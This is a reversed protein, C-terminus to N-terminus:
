MLTDALVPLVNVKVREPPVRVWSVVSIMTVRSSLLSTALSGVM